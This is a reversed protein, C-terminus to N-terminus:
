KKSEEKNEIANQALYGAIDKVLVFKGRRNPLTFVPVPFTKRLVAQRLADLSRYGMAKQLEIGSLVPARYFSMLKSELEDALAKIEEDSM